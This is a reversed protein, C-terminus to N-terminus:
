TGPSVKRAIVRALAQDDIWGERYYVIELPSCLRLLENPEVCFCAPPRENRELNRTTTLGSILLGGPSLRERMAPFLDRQLYAFCTIVDWPGAPLPETQLDVVITEIALGESRAATSGRELGVPSVDVATVQFGARAFWLAIRGTGSAVDLLRGGQPIEVLLERLWEPPTTHEHAREAWRRDWRERDEVM